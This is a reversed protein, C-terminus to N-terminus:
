MVRFIRFEFVSIRFEILSIKDVQWIESNRARIGM